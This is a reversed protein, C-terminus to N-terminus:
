LPHAQETLSKPSTGFNASASASPVLVDEGVKKGIFQDPALLPPVDPHRHCRLFQVQGHILMQECVAM